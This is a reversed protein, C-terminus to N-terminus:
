LIAGKIKNLESEVFQKIEKLRKESNAEFRMVLVPQTNSARILGWGDDFLIRVGDVDIIKYEKRFREKAAEVIQFKKEDPCDIRIEPTSYTKPVDSLLDSTKKNSEALIEALRCTAYIADDYGLYRDAFFIHGSMEGALLAGTEKMKAKILSHGTKWMIAKGGNKAIDDYMTQSCKVESIFTAGPKKKLIDRSFIIMLKDGWIIEGKEDVVGIRDADGDYAAGFDAGIEKVKKILLELNKPVTPDPHHNPFNGDLDCFLETVNCGLEQLIKPAAIGATGNGCDVVIKLPRKSKCFGSFNNKLYNLYDQVINYNSVSGKGKEFKGGEIIRRVEQIKDGYITEKGIALKFGNFEPPNHSGTIMVGGDAKLHHISFYLIPTPCVGIDIIEMGAASLGKIISDHLADSSLRIDRGLTIKKVGNKKAYTGFGKGLLEAAETTLDKGYVGRIDYERFIGSSM